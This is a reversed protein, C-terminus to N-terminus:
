AEYALVARTATRSTPRAASPPCRKSKGEALVRYARGCARARGICTASFRAVALLADMADERTAYVGMLQKLATPEYAGYHYVHM